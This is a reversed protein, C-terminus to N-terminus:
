TRTLLIRTKQLAEEAQERSVAGKQMVIAVRLDNNAENM